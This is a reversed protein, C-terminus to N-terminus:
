SSAGGTPQNDYEGTEAEVRGGPGGSTRRGHRTGGGTVHGGRDETRDMVMAYIETGNSLRVDNKKVNHALM